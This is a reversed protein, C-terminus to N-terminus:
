DKNRKRIVLLLVVGAAVILASIGVIIWFQLKIGSEGDDYQSLIDKEADDMDKPPVIEEGASDGRSISVETKYDTLSSSVELDMGYVERVSFTIDTSDKAGEKVKFPASIVTGGKTLDFGSSVDIANFRIEGNLESNFIANKFVPVSIRERDPELCEPDYYVSIDIGSFKEGAESIKLTYTLTDGVKFQADNVVCVNEEATASIALTCGLALTTVALLLSFFGKSSAVSKLIMEEMIGSM